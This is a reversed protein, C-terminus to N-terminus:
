TQFVTAILKSTYQPFISIIFPAKHSNNTCLVSILFRTSQSKPNIDNPLIFAYVIM